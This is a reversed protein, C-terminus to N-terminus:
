HVNNWVHEILNSQLNLFMLGSTLHAERQLITTLSAPAEYTITHYNDDYGDDRKDDIIKNHLIICALMILDLTRQSYSRSPIALINFRKKLLCFACEVDKRVSAEKM